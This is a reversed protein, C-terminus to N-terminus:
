NHVLRQLRIKPARLGGKIKSQPFLELFFWSKKTESFMDITVTLGTNALRSRVAASLKLINTKNTELDLNIATMDGQGKVRVLDRLVQSELGIGPLHPGFVAIEAAVRYNSRNIIQPTGSEQESGAFEEVCEDVPLFASM